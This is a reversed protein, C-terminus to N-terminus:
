RQQNTNIGYVQPRTGSPTVIVSEVEPTMRPAPAGAAHPGLHPITVQPNPAHTVSRWSFYYPDRKYVTTTQKRMQRAQALVFPTFEAMHELYVDLKAARANKATDLYGSFLM